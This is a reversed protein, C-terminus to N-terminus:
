IAGASSKGARWGTARVLASVAAHVGPLWLMGLGWRLQWPATHQRKGEELAALVQRAAQKCSLRGFLPSVSPVRDRSGPNSTSFYASDSIESLVVESVRVHQPLEQALSACLGALGWRAATYATAGPWPLRSAPSQTCLFVGGRGAVMAPLFAHATHLASALPAALCRATEEPSADAEYIARWVGVGANAIVVDCAGVAAAVGQLQAAVTCDVAFVLVAGPRTARLQAALEQLESETRALLVLRAHPLASSLLLATERGVGKSAGTILLTSHSHRTYFARRSRASLLLRLLLAASGLGLLGKAVPSLASVRALLSSLATDM